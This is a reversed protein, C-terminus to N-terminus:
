SGIEKKNELGTLVTDILIEILATKNKPKIIKNLKNLKATSEQSISVSLITYERKKHSEPIILKIM